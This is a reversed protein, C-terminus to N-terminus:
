IKMFFLEIGLYKDIKGMKIDLDLDALDNLYNLLKTEDLTKGKQYALKIRYPHIGLKSAIDKETYGKKYLLKTQLIIRFQNALMVIIKIPEENNKMLEKYIEIIKTKDNDVAAEILAFINDEITKSVLNNIDEEIIEKEKDKYLMLKNLESLIIDLNNNTRDRLYSADKNTIKYGKENLYKIIYETLSDEKLEKIFIVKTKQKFTKVIKKREDLSDYNLTFIITNDDHSNEIYKNLEETNHEIDTKPSTGTLFYTNNCIIIKKDCFLSPMLADEIVDIIPTIELDYKSICESNIDVNESKLIKNLEDNILQKEKSYLLYIM